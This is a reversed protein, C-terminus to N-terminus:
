AVVKNKRKAIQVTEKCSPYATCGYFKGFEGNKLVMPEGCSCKKQKAPARTSRKTAAPLCEDESLALTGVLTMLQKLASKQKSMFSDITMAGTSIDDLAQEWLASMGPDKIVAPLADVLARGQPTSKIFKGAKVVYNREVLLEFISARTAETGLGSTEKLLKKLRADSVFRAANLMASVWTGETYFAPPTSLKSAVQPKAIAVKEGESLAPLDQPKEGDGSDQDHGFLVRWGPVVVQKGKALFDGSNSELSIETSVYVHSSLFQSLYYRCIMQYINREEASLLEIDLVVSTPIIAHHETIKKDNWARSKQELSLQGRINALAPNSELVADIVVSAEDFHADSAYRCDVRPYTTIKYKEYLVQAIDLTKKIGYGWKKSAEIQLASLSLLLPPQVKSRKSDVSSVVAQTGQVREAIANLYPQSICRGEGDLYQEDSCQYMGNFHSNNSTSFTATLVFYPAPVFNEIERDRVVVFNLSPSQIRGSSFVGKLGTAQAKLTVLRTLNIGVLWDARSRALASVYSLYSSEGSRLDGLALKISEDAMSNLWLRLVAGKYDCYDLLERGILEGERGIDCGIVVESARSLLKKVVAFQKKTSPKVRMKWDTDAPIIPLHTIDWKKFEPNYGDPDVMELLHGVCWTVADGNELELFGDKKVTRGLFKVIAKAVSPKECIYVRM